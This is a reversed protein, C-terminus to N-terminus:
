RARDSQYRLDILALYLVVGPVARAVEPIYPTMSFVIYAIFWLIFLGSVTGFNNIGLRFGKTISDRIGAEGVVMEIFMLLSLVMLVLTLELLMGIVSAALFGWGRSLVYRASSMLGADNELYANRSYDISAMTFFKSVIDVVLLFVFGGMMAQIFTGWFEPPIDPYGNTAVTVVREPGLIGEWLDLLRTPKGVIEYVKTLVIYVVSAILDLAFVKPDRRIVAFSSRLHNAVGKKPPVWEEGVGETM